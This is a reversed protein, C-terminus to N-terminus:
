KLFLYTIHDQMNNIINIQTQKDLKYIFDDKTMPIIQVNSTNNIDINSNNDLNIDTNNDIDVNNDSNTNNSVPQVTLEELLSTKVKQVIENVIKNSIKNSKKDDKSKCVKQHRYLSSTHAYGNDCYKCYLYNNVNNHANKGNSKTITYKPSCIPIHNTHNPLEERNNSNSKRIKCSKRHVYLSQKCSLTKNCYECISKTM